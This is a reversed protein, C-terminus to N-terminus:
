ETRALDLQIVVPDHDSARYPDPSYLESVQGATKFEMNYDLATPEDANIHFPEAALVQGQLAASALAHDLAGSQGDFVYTTAATGDDRKLLARYGAQEFATIPDEQAYANLDGIVLVNDTAGDTPDDALWATQDEVAQTRLMNWCSQGDGQDANADSGGPCSGKSKLHNVAVTVREGSPTAFTQALPQRNGTLYPATTLTAPEGVPQVRSSDYILGVAIADTGLRSSGPDVFAYREGRSSAANLSDVLEAIASDAAYGDNEIEMLGIVDADITTIASVIKARQRDLENATDAGRATPFGSGQGDGNFFNLANFSAVRMNGGAPLDAASPRPHTPDFVPTAIPQIRWENFGYSLVGDIGTVTDGTRLTNLATLRPAPYVVPDPNQVSLGDDLILRNRANLAALAQAPRGPPVANTPTLLRGGASLMVEGFRGLTFTGTVTLKQALTVRMGELAEPATTSEFPLALLSPSVTFGSGCIDARDARTLETLGNFETVQGRVRIRQGVAFMDPSLNDADGTFVFLGESTSRDGDRENDATQVFLGDLGTDGPYRATVIAEIVHMENNLPSIDDSGQIDHIATAPAGCSGFAVMAPPTSTGFSGLDAFSNIPFGSFEDAPDFRTSGDMRGRTISANRRLTQNQTSLSGTGWASGPDVGIQGIVDVPAGNDLLALADDGNFLSGGYPQDAVALITADARADAFVFTQGAALTGSLTITAGASASGNFYIAIAYDGLDVPADTPNFIELSKNFGSGEVYESFFLSSETQAAAGTASLALALAPLLAHKSINM